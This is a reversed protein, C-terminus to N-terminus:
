LPRLPSHRRRRDSTVSRGGRLVRLPLHVGPPRDHAPIDPLYVPEISQVSIDSLNPECTKNYTVNNDGTYTVTTTHYDQLRDVAWEKYETQTQGFRREEVDDFVETFQGTDLPVTAHFNRPSWRRSM